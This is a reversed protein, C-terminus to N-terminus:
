RPIGLNKGLRSSISRSWPWPIRVRDATISHPWAWCVWSFFTLILFLYGHLTYYAFSAVMFILFFQMRSFGKSRSDNEHLARSFLSVQALNASWWMEAPDVLYIRLMGTWGYGLILWTYTHPIVSAELLGIWFATIAILLSLIKLGVHLCM